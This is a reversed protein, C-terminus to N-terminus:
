RRRFGAHWASFDRTADALGYAAKVVEIVEFYIEAPAILDRLYIAGHCFDSRRHDASGCVTIWIGGPRLTAAARRLFTNRRRVGALGHFFGKDYVVDFLEDPSWRFFDANVIRINASEHSRAHRVASPSADLGVSDFGMAALSVLDSGM